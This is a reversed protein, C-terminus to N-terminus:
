EPEVTIRTDVVGAGLARRLAADAQPITAFPGARVSFTEQRGERSRLVHAGLGGLRAALVNAYDFRGFAGARLWLQGPEPQVAHVIEPMRDPVVAAEPTAAGLGVVSGVVSGGGRRDSATGLPPLAEAVVTGAPATTIALKPGGGVQDVLRHSLQTDMQVRVRALGGDPILLDAAARQSLAILRGPDAPGRDNVRLLIQRGNELNTVLAIAPLQVTQMAAVLAGADFIEGNATLRPEGTQMVAIGTADLAYDEAPYYWHGDAQYPNGLVYHPSATLAPKPPPTRM